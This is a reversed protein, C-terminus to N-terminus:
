PANSQINKDYLYTSVICILWKALKTLHNLTQKPVFHNHTRTWNCDISIHLQQNQYVHLYVYLITNGPM